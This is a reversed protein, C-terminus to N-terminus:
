HGLQGCAYCSGPPGAVRSSGQFNHKPRNQQFLVEKVTKGQLAAALAIGQVYSPGIDACIRIFDALNSKKRYPRLAAQCASNANEYALQKALVLGAQEDGIVKGTEMLRAVFDQYPEYPGQRIKSLDETKNESNPLKRWARLAAANIQPYAGPLYGLQSYTDQYQGEGTLKELTVQIGQRQNISATAACNEYFESKWLLYNGGSLCARAVQKWDNPPLYQNGLSEVIAQTFPATPGYQACAMKLVKLQKFPITEYYRQQQADELVPYVFSFGPIHEGEKSAQQLAKQLPSLVVFKPTWAEQSTYGPPPSSTLPLTRHNNKSVNQQVCETIINKLKTMDFNKNEGTLFVGWPDEDRHYQAAQEELEEQDAPDLESDFPNDSANVAPPASPAEKLETNTPASPEINEIKVTDLKEGETAPDLCDRILQWLPLVTVPLKNPGNATYYDRLRVGVVRWTELNVTGQEPFWPCIEEVFVLFQELRQKTVQIGRAKLMVRLMQVFLGRSNNQGM